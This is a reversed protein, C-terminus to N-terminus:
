ELERRSVRCDVNRDVDDGVAQIEAGSRVRDLVSAIDRALEAESMYVQGMDEIVVDKPGDM